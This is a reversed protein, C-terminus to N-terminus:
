LMEGRGGRGVGRGDLEKGQSAMIMKLPPDECNGVQFGNGVGSGRRHKWFSLLLGVVLGEM